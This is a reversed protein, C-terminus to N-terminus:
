HAELWDWAEEIRGARFFRVPIGTFFGAIRVVWTMWEDWSDDAVVAIREIKSVQRWEKIDEWAGGSTWGDFHEIQFLMRIKPYQELAREMEPILNNTYDEETLRGTFRFWQITGRAARKEIM